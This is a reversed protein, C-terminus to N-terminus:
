SIYIHSNHTPAQTFVGHCQTYINTANDAALLSQPSSRVAWLLLFDHLSSSLTVADSAQQHSLISAVQQDSSLPCGCLHRYKLDPFYVSLALRSLQLCNAFYLHTSCCFVRDNPYQKPYYSSRARQTLHKDHKLLSM